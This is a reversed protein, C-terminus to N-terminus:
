LGDRPQLQTWDEDPWPLNARVQWGADDIRVRIRHIAGDMVDAEQGRLAMIVSDIQVRIRHIAGDMVDAEQGRLAMIVSDIQVALVGRAAHLQVSTQTETRISAIPAHPGKGRRIVESETHQHPWGLLTDIARLLRRVKVRDVVPALLHSM